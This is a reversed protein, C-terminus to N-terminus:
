YCFLIASKYLNEKLNHFEGCVALSRGAPEKSLVGIDLLNGTLM